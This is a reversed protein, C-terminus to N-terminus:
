DAAKVVVGNEWKGVIIPKTLSGRSDFTIESTIGEFKENLLANKVDAVNTSGAKEIANKFLYITEYALARYSDAEINYKAQFGEFFKKAWESENSQDRFFTLSFYVNETADGAVNLYDPVSITHSGIFEKDYGMARAQKTILGADQAYGTLFIHADPYNQLAQSLYSNFDKADTPYVYEKVIEPSGEANKFGNLISQGYADDRVFAIVKKIGLNQAAFASIRKGQVDSSNINVFFNTGEQPIAPDSAVSSIALMNSQNVKERQALAGASGSVTLVFSINQNAFKDMIQAGTFPDGADDEAVLEVKKGAIGGIANIEDVAYTAADYAPRGWSATPGSLGGIFGIKITESANSGSNGSSSQSSPSSSSGSSANSDNKGGCASLIMTLSLVLVALLISNKKM